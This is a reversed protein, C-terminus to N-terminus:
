VNQRVAGSELSFDVGVAGSVNGAAFELPPLIEAIRFAGSGTGVRQRDGAGGSHGSFQAAEFRLHGVVILQNHAVRVAGLQPGVLAERGRTGGFVDEGPFRRVDRLDRCLKVAGEFTAAFVDVVVKFPAGAGGVPLARRGRRSDISAGASPRLF